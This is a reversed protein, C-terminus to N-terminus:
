LMLFMYVAELLRFLLNFFHVKSFHEMADVASYTLLKETLEGFLTATVQGTADSINVDFPVQLLLLKYLWDWPYFM